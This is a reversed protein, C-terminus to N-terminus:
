SRPRAKAKSYSVSVIENAQSRSNFIYTVTVDGKSRKNRRDLYASLLLASWKKLNDATNGAGARVAVSVLGTAASMQGNIVVSIEISTTPNGVGFVSISHVYGIIIPLVSQRRQAM